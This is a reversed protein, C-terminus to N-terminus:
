WGRERWERLHPREAGLTTDDGHGPYVITEDPFRDFLKTTVDRYLSDFEEPSTTRGVGGPFLADGTFLHVQGAGDTLVLAVSGPTHGRLHIAELTLEGIRVTDGEALLRDPTVPLPEADLRHAATPVATEAVVKELGWWHDPHQHTTIILELRGAAEQGILELLREPENAADILLSAGTATDQVLYANNDMKGVSMKVIRAGPVARQQPNSGPSVHGTYADLTIM